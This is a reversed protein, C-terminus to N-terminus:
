LAYLLLYPIGTIIVSFIFQVFECKGGFFDDVLWGINKAM